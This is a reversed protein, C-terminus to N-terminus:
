QGGIGYEGEANNGKIVQPPAALRNTGQSAQSCDVSYGQIDGGWVSGCNWSWAWTLPQLDMVKNQCQSNRYRWFLSLTCQNQEPIGGDVPFRELRCSHMGRPLETCGTTLSSNVNNTYSAGADNQPCNSSTYCTVRYWPADDPLGPWYTNQRETNTAGASAALAILAVLSTFM